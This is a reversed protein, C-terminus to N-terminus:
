ALELPHKCDPLQRGRLPNNSKISLAPRLRLVRETQIKLAHYVSTGQLSQLLQTTSRPRPDAYSWVPAQLVGPHSKAKLLSLQHPLNNCAQAGHRRRCLRRRPCRIVSLLVPKFDSPRLCKYVDACVAASQFRFCKFHKGLKEYQNENCFM